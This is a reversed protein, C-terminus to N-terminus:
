VGVEDNSRITSEQKTSESKKNQGNQENTRKNTQKVSERIQFEVNINYVM